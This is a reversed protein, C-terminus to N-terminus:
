LEPNEFKLYTHVRQTRPVTNDSHSEFECGKFKYIVTDNTSSYVRFFWSTQYGNVVHFKTELQITSSAGTLKQSMESSKNCMLGVM